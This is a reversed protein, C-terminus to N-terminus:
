GLDKYLVHQITRVSRGGFLNPHQERLKRETLTSNCEVERKLLNLTQPATNCPKGEGHGHEPEKVGRSDKFKGM